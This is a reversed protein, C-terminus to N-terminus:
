PSELKYKYYNYMTEFTQTLVNAIEQAGKTTFHVYDNGAWGKKVWARMSNAGGMVQYMNWFAVGAKPIEMSLKEVLYPLHKYSQLTGDVMSLMDSPGIFLIPINPMIRQLYKIQSIIGAVYTEVSKDGSLGPVANGGYQLIIMGVNLMQFIEKMLSDRMSTFHLGSAGRMAINDVAVGFGDDILMGYINANGHFTVFFSRTAFNLPFELLQIGSSDTQLNYNTQNIKDSLEAKFNGHLNNILLSINSYRDRKDPMGKRNPAIVSITNYGDIRFMKALPGYDGEKNKRVEGWLSFCSYDGSYTQNVADNPITQHFPVMGPGGGGFKQQLFNRLNFSFRDLEIQSDGYYLVRVIKHQERAAEAKEFFTNFYALNGNPLEFTATMKEFVAEVDKLTDRREKKTSATKVTDVEEMIKHIDWKKLNEAPDEEEYSTHTLIETLSPFRLTKGLWLVGNSPFFLAILALCIIIVIIFLLIKQTKV